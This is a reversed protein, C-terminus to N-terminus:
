KDNGMQQSLVHISLRLILLNSLIITIQAFLVNSDVYMRQRKAARIEGLSLLEPIITV